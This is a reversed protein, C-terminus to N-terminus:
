YDIEDGFIDWVKNRNNAKLEFHHFNLCAQNKCKLTVRYPTVDENNESMWVLRRAQSMQAHGNKRVGFIAGSPSMAGSWPWCENTDLSVEIKSWLIEDNWSWPGIHKYEPKLTYHDRRM